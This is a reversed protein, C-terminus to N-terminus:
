GLLGLKGVSVLLGSSPMVVESPIPILANELVMLFFIGVYGLSSIISTTSEVLPCLIEQMVM